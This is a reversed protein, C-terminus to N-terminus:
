RRVELVMHHYKIHKKPILGSEGTFLHERLIQPVPFSAVRDVSAAAVPGTTLGKAYMTSSLENMFELIPEYRKEVFM